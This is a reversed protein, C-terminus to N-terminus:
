QSRRLRRLDDEGAATHDRRSLRVPELLLTRTQDGIGPWAELWAREDADAIDIDVWAIGQGEQGKAGPKAGFRSIVPM